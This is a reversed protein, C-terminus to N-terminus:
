ASMGAPSTRYLTGATSVTGCWFMYTPPGTDGISQLVVDRYCSATSTGNADSAEDEIVPLEGTHHHHRLPQARSFKIDVLVALQSRPARTELVAVAM